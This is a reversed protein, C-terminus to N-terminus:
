HSQGFLVPSELGQNKEKDSEKQMLAFLFTFTNVSVGHRTGVLFADVGFVGYQPTKKKSRVSLFSGFVGL